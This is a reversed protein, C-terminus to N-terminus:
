YRSSSRDVSRWRAARISPWGTCSCSRRRLRAATRSQRAAPRGGNAREKGRRPRVSQSVSGRKASPRARAALATSSMAWNSSIKAVLGSSSHASVKALSGSNKQDGILEISSMTTSGCNWAAAAEDVYRVRASRDRHDGGRGVEVAGRPCWSGGRWLETLVSFLNEGLEFRAATACSM